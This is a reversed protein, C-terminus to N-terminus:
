FPCEGDNAVDAGQATAPEQAKPTELRSLKPKDTHFTAVKNRRQKETKGTPTYEDVILHCHGRLGVPNIWVCGAAQAADVEFEFPADVEPAAGTCKLFTDIKWSCSPHDILREFIVGGKQEIALKLEWYPSGATKGNGTQIGSEMAVVRFVYDGPPHVIFAQNEQNTFKPM